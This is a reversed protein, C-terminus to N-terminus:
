FSAKFGFAFSKATLNSFNNTTPPILDPDLGFDNARWIVGLNNAYFYLQLQKIPIGKWNIMNFDYSLSVDQLRIHDGRAVTASSNNYFTDRSSDEGFRGQSPINTVTEDGSKKWRNQYDSNMHSNIGINYMGYYDVSNKKIYYGFKYSLNFALTFKQLTFSNSLGGFITPRAPGNYELDTANGNLIANYDKSILGDIYGRPDGTIPDLGAWKYSYVGYVPKNIVPTISNTGVYYISIPETVDYDSIWDRVASFMFATTWRLKGSLNESILSIDFGKAKIKSYNGRLVKIGTNSPFSKDGLIDSGNKIYYEIKGRIAPKQLGFELGVNTIAVKEWRLEPNGINIISAFPLNTFAAEVLSYKFTTVGTYSKDLNGNYGYSARFKLVPLWNLKYFDERDINWLAGASWLPVYKHNTKVGFYNSGDVRASGSITYRDDHTYAVNLYSSRMRDTNGFIRSSTGIQASGVPNLDFYSTTDVAVSKGSNEDYGYRTNKNLSYISESVEYGIIASIVNKNWKKEYNLQTRLNNSTFKGDATYLIGGLPINYGSVVGSTLISYQNILQRTKYTEINSYRSLKSDIRQYQYKIAASLGPIINYTLGGNLRLDNDKTVAPSKGLENLPVYQWDLFGRDIAENKFRSNFDRDLVTNRGNVDKFQYYSPALSTMDTFSISDTKSNSKVFYLGVELELNKLPRVSNQSNITIRNNNNAVITADTKDYGTSFYHNSQTTGGALSVAYQQSVPKRYFYKLEDQRVDKTRLSNLQEETEDASQGMRQKNLIQVVPSVVSYNQPDNLIEDYKGNNFLYTEIDIYDSSSLYNPNYTLDPKGSITLNSNVSARLPQKNRGRKTTIVIVGNGARVGWISSAAADKLVSISAIDNPNISNFEGNFPFNDLIILPQANAYITSRGRVSLDLVGRNSILTNKNFLLGSTIGELRPFVDETVRRTFQATDVLAFSGTARQRAIKQYGTSVIEIEKLHDNSLSLTVNGAYLARSEKNQYGIYSIILMAATDIQRLLYKGKLDTVSSKDEGKVRITAGQLLEGQENTVTGGIDITSSPKIVIMKKSIIYTLPLGSLIHNMVEPLPTAVFDADIRKDANLKQENWIIQYDTQRTIEKFVQVLKIRKQVLNLKQCIASSSLLLLISCTLLSNLRM